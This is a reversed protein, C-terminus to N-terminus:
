LVKTRGPVPVLYKGASDPMLPAPEDLSSVKDLGPAVELEDEVTHFGLERIIL